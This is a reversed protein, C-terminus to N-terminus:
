INLSHEKTSAYTNYKAVYTRLIVIFFDASLLTLGKVCASHKVIIVFKVRSIELFTM